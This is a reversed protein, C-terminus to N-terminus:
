TRVDNKHAGGGGGNFFLCVFSFGSDARTPKQWPRHQVCLLCQMYRYTYNLDNNLIFFFFTEAFSQLHATGGRDATTRPGNLGGASLGTRVASQDAASPM